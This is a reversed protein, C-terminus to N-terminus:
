EFPLVQFTTFLLEALAGSTHLCTCMLTKGKEQDCPGMYLMTQIQQSYPAKFFVTGTKEKQVSDGRTLTCIKKCEDSCFLFSGSLHFYLVRLHCHPLTKQRLNYFTHEDQLDMYSTIAEPFVSPPLGNFSNSSKKKKPCFINTKLESLM